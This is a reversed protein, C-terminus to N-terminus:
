DPREDRPAAAPAARRYTRFQRIYTEIGDTYRPAVIRTYFPWPDDTFSIKEDHEPALNAV